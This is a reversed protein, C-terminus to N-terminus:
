WLQSIMQEVAKEIREDESNKLSAILSLQDVIDSDALIGPDYHWLQIVVEERIVNLPKSSKINLSKYNRNSVAFTRLGYSGIDSYHSLAYIGSKYIFNNTPDLVIQHTRKVPNIIYDNSQQFVNQKNANFVLYNNRVGDLQAIGLDNLLYSARTITMRSYPIESQLLQLNLENTDSKLLYYFLLCQSAPTLRDKKKILTSNTHKFDIFLFPMYIQKSPVIFSLKKDIMRQRNYAKINNSVFVIPVGFTNEIISRQKDLSSVSFLDEEDSFFVFIINKDLITSYFLKYSHRILLPLKKEDAPLIASISIKLGLNVFLYKKLNDIIKYHTLM